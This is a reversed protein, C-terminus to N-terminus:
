KKDTELNSIDIPNKVEVKDEPSVPHEEAFKDMIDTKDIKNIGFPDNIDFESNESEIVLSNEKIISQFLDNFKNKMKLYM